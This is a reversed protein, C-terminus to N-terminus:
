CEQGIGLIAKKIIKDDQELKRKWGSILDSVGDEPQIENSRDQLYLVLRQHLESLPHSGYDIDCSHTPHRHYVFNYLSANPTIDRVQDFMQAVSEQFLQMM